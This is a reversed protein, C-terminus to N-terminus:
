CIVSSEKKASPGRKAAFIVTVNQAYKTDWIGCRWYGTGHDCSGQRCNGEQPLTFTAKPMEVKVFLVV